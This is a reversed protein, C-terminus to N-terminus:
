TVHVDQQVGPQHQARPWKDHRAGDSQDGHGRLQLHVEGSCCSRMLNRTLSNCASISALSGCLLSVQREKGQEYVPIDVTVRTEDIVGDDHISVPVGASTSFVRFTLSTQWNYIPYFDHVVAEHLAVAKGVCLTAAHSGSPVRM